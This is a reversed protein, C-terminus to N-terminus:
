VFGPFYDKKIQQKKVGMEQLTKDFAVVMSHPGSLYFMREKYDPVSRQIMQGDIMGREGRWSKPFPMDTVTYIIKIGLQRKALDFVDKYVIDGPARNSYFLIIDRKEKIDLLYKIMSRFPTIGIGGAILVLKEDKNKPLVFDGALQSAVVTEGPRLRLMSQKFSSSNPYFKVGMRVDEETPSSAITFYRRIGRIDPGGHGLTWEMYQGPKFVLKQDSKFLFDYVDAAVPVKEKLELILKKKPSVAFAFINGVLLALEPTSYVSGLHIFPAFLFGVLAGYIVRLGKTPPTTMPETLMVFGLFLVSSHFLVKELVVLMDGGKFFSFGLITAFSVVLFSLVLDSRKIKRVVLLGGLLVFPAMYLNGVWWNASDNIILGAIVVALAAPNFIHKKNLALIYKSSMAVLAALGLFQLGDVSKAPSIILALILVTIYVSELNSPVVFVQAFVYNVVLCVLAIFVASALIEVPTYPIFGFVSFVFAVLWLILVYYLVLRYM